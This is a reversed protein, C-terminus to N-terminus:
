TGLPMRCSIIIIIIIIIFSSHHDIVSQNILILDFAESDQGGIM